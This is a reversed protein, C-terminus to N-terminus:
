KVANWVQNVQDTLEQGGQQYFKQVYEDFADVPLAGTVIKTFYEFWLKSYLDPYDKMAPVSGVFESQLWNETNNGIKFDVSRPDDPKIWRRDVTGLWRVPNSYGLKYMNVADGMITNDIFNLERDYKYNVDEVGYQILRMGGEDSDDVMWNLIKVLREPDQKEACKKSMVSAFTKIPSVPMGKKGEPGIPPTIFACEAEEGSGNWAVRADNAWWVTNEWVGFKGAIFKDKAQKEEVVFKDPDILGEQYWSQLLTLVEKTEPLTTSHVLKGDREMWSNLGNLYIGYAGFISSFTQNKHGSLGYTDNEGNGDPDREKIATLVEHLEDLTKPAEYGMKKLWDTRVILGNVGPGNVSGELATEVFGYHKGDIMFNDYSAKAEPVELRKQYYPMQAVYDDIPVIIKNQVLTGLNEVDVMFYDPVDGGAMMANLKTDYDGGGVLMVEYDTNTIGLNEAWRKKIEQKAEGGDPPYEAIAQRLYVKYTVPSMGETGEANLSETGEMEADSTETSGKSCGSMSSIVTTCMLAIALTKKINKKM